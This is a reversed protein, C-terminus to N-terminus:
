GTTLQPNASPILAEPTVGLEEHTFPRGCEPCIQRPTGILCYGCQPCYPGPKVSEPKLQFFFLLIAVCLFITIWLFLVITPGDDARFLYAFRLAV